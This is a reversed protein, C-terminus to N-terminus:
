KQQIISITFYYTPSQNQNETAYYIKKAQFKSFKKPKREVSVEPTIEYTKQLVGEFGSREFDRPFNLGSTETTSKPDLGHFIQYQNRIAQYLKSKQEEAL